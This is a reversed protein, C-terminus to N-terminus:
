RSAQRPDFRRFSSSRPRPFNLGASRASPRKWTRSGVFRTPIGVRGIFALASGWDHGVLTVDRTAGVTDFWADLYECHEAFTYSGPGSDALKDSDGMGILDPALCRGPDAVEGIMHRWLYSSTPNGHLFVIPDGAGIEVYAMRM